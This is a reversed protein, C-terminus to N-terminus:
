GVQHATEALCSTAGDKRDSNAALAHKRHSELRRRNLQKRENDAERNRQEVLRLMAATAPDLADPNFGFPLREAL